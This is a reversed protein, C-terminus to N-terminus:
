RRGSLLKLMVDYTLPDSVAGFGGGPMPTAQAPTGWPTASTMPSQQKLLDEMAKKLAEDQVQQPTQAQASGGMAHKAM